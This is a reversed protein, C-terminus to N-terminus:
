AATGTSLEWATGAFSWPTVLAPQKPAPRSRRPTASPWPGGTKSCSRGVCGQPAAGVHGGCHGAVAQRHHHALPRLVLLAHGAAREGAVAAATSPHLATFLLHLHRADLFGTRLITCHWCAAQGCRSKQLCAAQGAMGASGRGGVVFRVPIYDSPIGFGRLRKVSDLVLEHTETDKQAMHFTPGAAAAARQGRAAASSLRRACAHLQQATHSRM